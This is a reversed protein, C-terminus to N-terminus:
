KRDPSGLDPPVPPKHLLFFWQPSLTRLLSTRAANPLLGATRWIVGWGRGWALDILEDIARGTMDHVMFGAKRMLRVLPRYTRFRIGDYTEGRRSLRVYLNAARGPLWSLFPLRYHPEMVAFRSGAAVYASGGPALVRYAEAFLAAQDAVHEYLHNLMVFGLTGSRVPLRLVDAVATRDGAVIFPRDLEFGYIKNGTIIELEKKIIGTGSGLDAARVNGSLHERCLHAIVSAKQARSRRYADSAVYRDYRDRRADM